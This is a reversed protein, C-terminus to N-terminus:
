TALNRASVTTQFNLEAGLVGQELPSVTMTITVRAPYADAPFTQNNFVIFALQKVNVNTATIATGDTVCNGLVGVYRNIAAGSLCYTVTQGTVTGFSVLTPTGSCTPNSSGCRFTLGTRLERAMQEITLSANSNASLLGITQRQTRLARVFGGTAISVIISFVSLAVLFEILTFGGRDSNKKTIFSQHLM